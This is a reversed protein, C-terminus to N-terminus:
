DPGTRCTQPTALSARAHRAAGRCVLRDGDVPVVVRCADLLPPLAWRELAATAAELYGAYRLTGGALVLKGPNFLNVLTALGLGLADGARRVAECAAPEHAALRAHVGAADGGVMRLIAAGPRQDGRGRAHGRWELADHHACQLHIRM